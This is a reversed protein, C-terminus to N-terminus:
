ESRLAEVPDKRAASRSPIIGAILTLLVSILVLVAATTVPLQASLSRIDTLKHLILNIPICLLWTIVVGLLGSAFGIIATEANFMRSVNKKSAGLARLIGIERTREQVSILTIVGIMISSVVLSVAVFAILVYTIANIITTISSMMLGVYDTYHIQQMEEVGENYRSIADEIVEKDNFTAAYLNVSSPKETDIVGLRSLNGDYSSDSFTLLQDYYGAAEEDTMSAEKAALAAKLQDPPLKALSMATEAAYRAKFSTRVMESVLATLNEDSMGSIYEAVSEEPMGTQDSMAKTIMSTMAERDMGVLTEKVAAEVTEESPISMMRIYLAARGTDSQSALHERFDAAKKETSLRGDSDRFPLATFVDTLPDAKQAKVVGSADTKDALWKTLLSTYGLNGSVMHASADPDPRVIGVIKLSLANEYLYRLGAPTERLDYWIGKAPDEAYCDCPLILRYDRAAMEAYSWSKMEYEVSERNASAEFLRKMEEEPLLGLAYLALDSIENKSDVFLVIEDAAAPWRGYLLSYQEKVLEHVPEGDEGPLLEQWLGSSRSAASSFSSAQRMATMSSMDMGAYKKMLDTMLQQMDSLTLEGDPNETYIILDTDYTLKVASLARGLASDQATREQELWALFSALDNEQTEIRSLANVTEYLMAKQYVADNEHEGLSRARGMFSSLISSMDTYRSELTLPYASLTQEQVRDIYATTGHSVAYILAIGIIGISGAFATLITRGRKTILNKLSLGFSTAYNMSPQKKSRAEAAREAGAALEADAEAGELPRSDSLLLGDLMRVIRTSYRDALDPNHTVMIVLRDESVKKLIEMVQVSTETDLAGTPEDALIIDPDNVLARAIAVRQMQGGSMEAPKKKLQDGLGVDQLAKVARERREAKSVGALTLALEVNRLVNQHPILHYNQFVFGISHNRYADWDRDKYASTSVGNIILEGATAHDLGGILNLLTTKGCGSPGLVSVFESKRFSLSIGKLAEVPEGGAPYIKTINKLELM